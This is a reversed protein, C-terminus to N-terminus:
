VTINDGKLGEFAGDIGAEKHAILWKNVAALLRDEGRLSGSMDKRCEHNTGKPLVVVCKFGSGDVGCPAYHLTTAYIEVAEGAKVLFAEVRSTDYTYDPEIDQQCGLLLIMDTCAVNVESCRHYELANLKQNHGNCYGTQVPYGGYYVEQMVKAFETIELREDSAVYVVEDTVEINKMADTIDKTDIDSIVRGYKKFSDDTVRYINM